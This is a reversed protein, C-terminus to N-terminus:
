EGGGEPTDGIQFQYDDPDVGMDDLFCKDIVLTFIADQALADKKLYLTAYGQLFKNYFKLMEAVSTLPKVLTFGSLSIQGANINIFPQDWPNDESPLDTLAIIETITVCEKIPFYEKWGGGEPVVYGFTFTTELQGSQHLYRVWWRKNVNYAKM